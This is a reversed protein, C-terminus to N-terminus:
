HQSPRRPLLSPSAAHLLCLGTLPHSCPSADWASPGARTLAKLSIRPPGSDQLPQPRSPPPHCSTPHPPSGPEQVSHCLTPVQGQSCHGATSRSFIAQSCPPSHTPPPLRCANPNSAPRSMGSFCHLNPPPPARAASSPLLSLLSLTCQPWSLVM